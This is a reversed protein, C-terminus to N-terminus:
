RLLGARAEAEITKQLELTALKKQALKKTAADSAAMVAQRAMQIAEDLQQPDKHLQNDAKMRFQLAESVDKPHVGYRRPLPKGEGAIDSLQGQSKAKMMQREILADLGRAM